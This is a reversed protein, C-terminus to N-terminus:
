IVETANGCNLILTLDSVLISVPIEKIEVNTGDKIVADETLGSISITQVATTLAETNASVNEEIVDIRDTNDVVDKRLGETEGDGLITEVETIRNQLDTIDSESGSSNWKDIDEQTIGDLLEKNDHSHSLDTLDKITTEQLNDLTDELVGVRNILGAAGGDEESMIFDAIEKLTDFNEPANDVIAAIADAVQKQVSGEGEGNLIDVSTILESVQGETTQLRGDLGNTIETVSEEFTDYQTKFEDYETLFTDLNTGSDKINGDETLLVINGEINEVSEVKDVKTSVTIPAVYTADAINLEDLPPIDQGINFEFIYLADNEYIFRYSTNTDEVKGAIYDELNEIEEATYIPKEAEKAWAYVDGATSQIWPLNRFVDNGNGVKVGIAPPTLITSGDPEEFTQQSPIEAIALEGAELTIESNLWNAYTDYKHKIRVNLENM